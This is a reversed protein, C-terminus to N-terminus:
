FYGNSRSSNSLHPISSLVGNFFSFAILSILESFFLLTEVSKFFNKKKKKFWKLTHKKTKQLGKGRASKVARQVFENRNMKGSSHHHWENLSSVKKEGEAIKIYTWWYGAWLSESFLLMTGAGCSARVYHFNLLSQADLDNRRHIEWSAQFTMLPSLLYPWTASSSWFLKVFEM